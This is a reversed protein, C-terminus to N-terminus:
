KEPKESVTHEYILDVGKKALQMKWIRDAPEITELFASSEAATRVDEYCDIGLLLGKMMAFLFVPLLLAAEITYGAPLEGKQVEEAVTRFIRKALQKILGDTM